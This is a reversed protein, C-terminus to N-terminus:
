GKRTSRRPGAASRRASGRASSRSPRRGRDDVDRDATADLRVVRERLVLEQAAEEVEASLALVAAALDLRRARAHDDVRLLAEDEGVVVDDLVRVLDRDRERVVAAQARLDDARVFAGVERHQLHLVFRQDLHREAIRALQADAVVDDRDAIREAERVGDGRSDHAREAAAPDIAVRVLVENLRVRRDIGAVRAAREHVELALEDPMLEAIMERLPPLMPIPKAIGTFM